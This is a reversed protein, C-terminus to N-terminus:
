LLSMADAFIIICCVCARVCVCVCVRGSSTLKCVRFRTLKSQIKHVPSLPERLHPPKYASAGKALAESVFTDLFSLSSDVELDECSADLPLLEQMM